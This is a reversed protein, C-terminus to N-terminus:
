DLYSNRPYEVFVGLTYASAVQGTTTGAVNPNGVIVLFDGSQCTGSPTITIAPSFEIDSDTTFTITSAVVPTSLATNLSDGDGACMASWDFVMDGSSAETNTMINVLGIDGGTYGTPTKVNFQIIGAANEACNVVRYFLSNIAIREPNTCQTEDVEASGASYFIPGNGIHSGTLVTGGDPDFTVTGATDPATIIVSKTTKPSLEIDCDAGACESDFVIKGSEAHINVSTTGATDEIRVASALDDAGSITDGADYAQQLTVSGAGQDVTCSQVAGSADVGLPFQGAPCNAGDGHGGGVGAGGVFKYTSGELVLHVIINPDDLAFTGAPVDINGTSTITITDGVDQAQLFFEAGDVTCGSITALTDTTGSEPQLTIKNAFGARLTAAFEGEVNPPDPESLIRGVDIPLLFESCDVVLSDSTLAVSSNWDQDNLPQASVVLTSLFLSALLFSLALHRCSSFQFCGM